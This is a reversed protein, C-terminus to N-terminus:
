EAVAVMFLAACCDVGLEDFEFKLGGGPRHDLGEDPMLLVNDGRMDLLEPPLVEKTVM